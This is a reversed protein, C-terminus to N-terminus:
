GPHREEFAVVVVKFVAAVDKRRLIKQGTPAATTRAAAVAGVAVLRRGPLRLPFQGRVGM